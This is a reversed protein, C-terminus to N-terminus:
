ISPYISLSIYNKESYYAYFEDETVGVDHTVSRNGKELKCKPGSVADQFVNVLTKRLEELCIDRCNGQMNNGLENKV